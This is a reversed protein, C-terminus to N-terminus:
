DSNSFDSKVDEELIIKAFKDSFIIYYRKYKLKIRAIFTERGLPIIEELEISGKRGLYPIKRRLLIPLLFYLVALVFLLSLVVQLVIKWDIM